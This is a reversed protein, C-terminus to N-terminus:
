GCDYGMSGVPLFSQTSLISLKESLDGISFGVIYMHSMYVVPIHTYINEVYLRKYSDLSDMRDM